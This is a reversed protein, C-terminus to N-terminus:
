ATKARLQDWYPGRRCLRAVDSPDALISEVARELLINNQSGKVLIYSRPSLHSSLYRILDAMRTFHHVPFKQSRLVPLTYRATLEGFLIAEDCYKYLWDALNKHASKESLGLEKMDGVVAIKPHHGGLQKLLKLSDLMALPSANYSSDIISSDKIGSFIRMRGAPARYSSLAKVSQSPSIGLGASTAVAAAFTYAFHEPFVDPLTLKHLTNQYAFVFHSGKHNIRSSIIRFRAKTFKGITLQRAKTGRLQDALFPQDINVIAVGRSDLSRALKMKEKAIEAILKRERRRPNVDKVLPDFNATHTLGANLVLAIHPQVIRLLYDMNKPYVPSDIGMEVVYYNFHEWNTLLRWPVLVILRLWDLLRYSTLRLGLINLPIGSESNAHSSHKVIGKTKLIQVIALRASTKGASGTIGIITAHPNKRLQARACLRFYELIINGLIKKVM